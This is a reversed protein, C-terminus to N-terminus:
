ERSLVQPRLEARPESAPAMGRPDRWRALRSPSAGLLYKLICAQNVLTTRAIGSELWRRASTQVASGLIAVRGLRRARRVLDFDEMIPLDHFGGLRYFVSAPVALAQDGYPLSLWRARQQAFREVWRFAARPHDIRMRFAALVKCPQHLARELEEAYGHPLRTDAHLFLLISGRASAAGANMQRARGAPASIVRAGAARAMQLTGDDSGGDVVVVEVGEARLASEIARGVHKAENLAPIIVSIRPSRHREWEPLDHPEDVDALMPLRYVTLGAEAARRLTQDMVHPSSWTIREFLPQCPRRLGILYYGGDRAPGIVGDHTELAEYAAGLLDCDLAPCDTGIVVVRRAGRAFAEVLARHMKNGLDGERQRLYVHQKGFLEAMRTRDGGAFRVETSVDRVFRLRETTLLTQVTMARQLGAAAAAGLAPILRTKALGPEPFRAFVVVHERRVNLAGVPPARFREGLVTCLIKTGAGIVGRLTGSIKSRGIRRRYDVQVECVRLGARLARVQMQITWGYTRDDLHLCELAAARVARFPGLDTFRHEWFWRILLCALANGCQQPYTLAGPERRGHTRSGIVLDADGGAVPNVLRDMQEPHDSFDADLFVFVDADPAAGIGALCAGGYGRQPEHVVRAGHRRAIAATQDTSGNDVVVVNDAWRPIAGLVHPLSQEENLAPIIVAINQDNYM